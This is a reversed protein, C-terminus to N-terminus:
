LAGHGPRGAPGTGGGRPRPGARGGRGPGMPHHDAPPIALAQELRQIRHLPLGCGYKLLGIMAAATADYKATGVGAPSAATFVTGCLGCRLRERTYVQAQLPAVGTVRV